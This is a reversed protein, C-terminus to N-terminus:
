NIKCFHIPTHSELQLLFKMTKMNFIIRSPFYLLNIKRALHILILKIRIIIIFIKGEQDGIM